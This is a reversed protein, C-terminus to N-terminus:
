KNWTKDKRETANHLAQSLVRPMLFYRVPKGFQDKAFKQENKPVLAILDEASSNILKQLEKDFQKSQKNAAKQLKTSEEASLGARKTFRDATLFHFPSEQYQGCRTLIERLRDSQHDLLANMRQSHPKWLLDRCNEDYKRKVDADLIERRSTPSVRVFKGRPVPIHKYYESANKLHTLKPMQSDILELEGGIEKTMFLRNMGYMLMTSRFRDLDFTSLLREDQYYFLKPLEQESITKGLYEPVLAFRITEGAIEKALRRQKPPLEDIVRSEHKRVLKALDKSFQNSVFNDISELYQKEDSGSKTIEAILLDSKMFCFPSELVGRTQRDIQEARKLQSDSLTKFLSRSFEAFLKQEQKEIKSILLEEKEFEKREAEGIPLSVYGGPRIMERQERLSESARRFQELKKQFNRSQEATVGLESRYEDNFILDYTLNRLSDLKRNQDQGNGVSAIAWIAIGVLFRLTTNM